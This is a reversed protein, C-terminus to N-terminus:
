ARVGMGLLDRVAEKFPLGTRAMHFALVDRGKAGCTHCRYAGGEVIHVSLSPHHDDHFPCLASAWGSGNPPTLKDLHQSYYALPDPLRRKWDRPLYASARNGYLQRCADLYQPNGKREFGAGGRVRPKENRTVHNM